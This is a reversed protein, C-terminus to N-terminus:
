SQPWSFVAPVAANAGFITKEESQVISQKLCIPIIEPIEFQIKGLQKLLSLALTAVKLRHAKAVPGARDARMMIEHADRRVELFNIFRHRLCFRANELNGQLSVIGDITQGDQIQEM